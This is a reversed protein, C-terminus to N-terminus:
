CAPAKGNPWVAITTWDSRGSKFRRDEAGWASPNGFKGVDRTLAGLPIQVWVVVMALHCAAAVEYTSTLASLPVQVRVVVKPPHFAAM